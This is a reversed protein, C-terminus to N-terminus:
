ITYRSINGTIDGEPQMETGSKLWFLLFLTGKVDAGPTFSNKEWLSYMAPLLVAEDRLVGPAATM